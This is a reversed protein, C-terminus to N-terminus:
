AASWARGAAASIRHWGNRWGTALGVNRIAVGLIFGSLVLWFASSAFGGFVSAAPAIHLLMAAAFFLLATIFEPLRASAWLLITVAVVLTTLWLHPNSTFM